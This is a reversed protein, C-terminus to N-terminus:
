LSECRRISLSAGGHFEFAALFGRDVPAVSAFAGRTCPRPSLPLDLAVRRGIVHLARSRCRRCIRNRASAGRMRASQANVQAHFALFGHAFYAAKAAGDAARAPRVPAVQYMIKRIHNRPASLLLQVLSSGNLASSNFGEGAGGGM